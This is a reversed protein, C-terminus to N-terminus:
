FLWWCSYKKRGCLANFPIGKGTLINEFVYIIVGCCPECENKNQLRKIGVSQMTRNCPHRTGQNSKGLELYRIVADLENVTDNRWDELRVM